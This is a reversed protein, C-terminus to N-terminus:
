TSTEPWAVPEGGPERQHFTLLEGAIGRRFALVCFAFILGMVLDTEQGIATKSVFYEIAQYVAAGIMPGVITGSGGLITMMVVAGSTHWDLMELGALRNGLAYLAGALGSLAGAMVFAALKFRHVRYGLAIARPENQRIARLMAGFPSNMVRVVFWVCLAVVVFTFYYYSLDNPLHVGFFNGRGDMPLGNEGGTLGSLQVAVFYEIQAIALTIMAFYIGSRRVVVTGVIFALLMAYLTGGLLGVTADTRDHQVLIAAVYGAGGWFMAQGFSLLGVFGFLLDLAVAFLGFCLIDIAVIPYILKPLALGVIGAVVFLMGLRRNM